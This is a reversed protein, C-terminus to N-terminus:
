GCLLLLLAKDLAIMHWYGFKYVETVRKVFAVIGFELLNELPFVSLLRGQNCKFLAATELVM